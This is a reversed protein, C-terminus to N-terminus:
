KFRLRQNTKSKCYHRMNCSLAKTKKTGSYIKTNDHVGLLYKLQYEGVGCRLHTVNLCKSNIEKEEGAYRANKPSKKHNAFNSRRSNM